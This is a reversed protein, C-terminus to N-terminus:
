LGHVLLLGQPPTPVKLTTEGVRRFRYERGNLM